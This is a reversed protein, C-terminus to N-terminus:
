QAITSGWCRIPVTSANFQAVELSSRCCTPGSAASDSPVQCPPSDHGPVPAWWSVLANSTICGTSERYARATHSIARHLMRKRDPTPELSVEGMSSSAQGLMSRQTLLREGLRGVGGHSSLAVSKRRGRARQKIAPITPVRSGFNAPTTKSRHHEGSTAGQPQVSIPPAVICFHPARSPCLCLVKGPASLM